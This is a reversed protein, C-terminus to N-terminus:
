KAVRLTKAKSKKYIGSSDKYDQLYNQEIEKAIKVFFPEM